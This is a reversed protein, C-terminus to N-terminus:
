IEKQEYDPSNRELPPDQYTFLKCLWLGKEKSSPVLNLAMTTTAIEPSVWSWSKQAGGM